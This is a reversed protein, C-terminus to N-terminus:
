ARGDWTSCTCSSRTAKARAPSHAPPNGRGAAPATSARATSAGAVRGDGQAARGAAARHEGDPMPGVNFLLNGDGGACRILTQLCQKLSKMKDNPKWAWQNCITMCTEWPRDIRSSASASSPRTTTAAPERRSRNNILIDPQLSRVCTSRRGAGREPTSTRRCTSGSRSWRGTTAHDAGDVQAKCTITTATWTRRQAEAHKGGPSGLPFDPHHWDCVSYYTGFRSARSAAPRPWNRSWTAASRRTCSTTTPRSPTGSASATTTSPPSAGHIEHGADKAVSSGSTPTSSRRTSSSTSTTTNRSRSRRAARGASRRARSVSRGGTSSCASARM